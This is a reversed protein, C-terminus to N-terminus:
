QLDEKSKKLFGQLHQWQLYNRSVVEERNFLCVSSDMDYAVEWLDM